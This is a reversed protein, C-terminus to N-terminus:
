ECSPHCDTEWPYSPPCYESNTFVQNCDIVAETSKSFYISPIYDWKNEDINWIKNFCYKLEVECCYQMTCRKEIIFMKVQDQSSENRICFKRCVDHFYTHSTLYDENSCLFQEKQADSWGQTEDNFLKLSVQKYLEEWVTAVAGDNIPGQYGNPYIFDRLDHCNEDEELEADILSIWFSLDWM